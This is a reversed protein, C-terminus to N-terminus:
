FVNKLKKKLENFNQHNFDYPKNPKTLKHLETVIYKHHNKEKFEICDLFEIYCKTLNEDITSLILSELYGDKTTPNCTIFYDSIEKIKLKDLLKEIENKTNEYGGFKANDKQYDADVIFLVKEVKEAKVLALLTKYEKNDIKFINSKNGMIIFNDDSIEIGLFELFSKIFNKDTKGECVIKVM